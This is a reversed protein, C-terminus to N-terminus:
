DRWAEGSCFSAVILVGVEVNSRAPTPEGM